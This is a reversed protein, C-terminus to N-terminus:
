TVRITGTVEVEGDESKTVIIPDDPDEGWGEEFQIGGNETTLTEMHEGGRADDADWLKSALDRYGHDWADLIALDRQLRNREIREAETV